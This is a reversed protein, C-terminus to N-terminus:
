NEKGQMEVEKVVLSPYDMEYFKVIKNDLSYTSSDFLSNKIEEDNLLHSGIVEYGKDSQMYLVAFRISRPLTNDNNIQVKEVAVKKDNLLFIIFIIFAFFLLDFLPSSMLGILFSM